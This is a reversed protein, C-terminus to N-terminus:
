EIVYNLDHLNDPLKKGGLLLKNRRLAKKLWADVKKSNKEYEKKFNSRIEKADKRLQKVDRKWANVYYRAMSKSYIGEKVVKGDLFIRYRYEDEYYYADPSQNNEQCDIWDRQRTQVKYRKIIFKM